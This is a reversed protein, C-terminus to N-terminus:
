WDGKKIRNKLREIERECEEIEINLIYNKKNKNYVKLCSLRFRYYIILNMICSKILAERLNMSM